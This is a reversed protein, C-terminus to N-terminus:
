RDNVSPMIPSTVLDIARSRAEYRDAMELHVRRVGPEAARMASERAQQARQRFYTRDELSDPM